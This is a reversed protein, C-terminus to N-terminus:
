CSPLSRFVTNADDLQIELRNIEDTCHNLKELEQQVRPDLEEEEVGGPGSRVLDEMGGQQKVLVVEKERSGQRGGEGRVREEM